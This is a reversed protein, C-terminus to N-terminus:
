ERIRLFHRWFGFRLGEAFGMTFVASAQVSSRIRQMGELSDRVARNVSESLFARSIGIKQRSTRRRRELCVSWGRRQGKEATPRNSFQGTRDVAEPNSGRHTRVRATTHRVMHGREIRPRPVFSIRLFCIM